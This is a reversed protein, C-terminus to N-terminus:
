AQRSLLSRLSLAALVRRRRGVRQGIERLVRGLSEWQESAVFDAIEARGFTAADISVALPALQYHPLLAASEQRTRGAPVAEGLDRAYDLLEQWGNIIRDGPSGRTRRLRRRAAKATVVAAAYLLVLLIPVGLWWLLAALWGPLASGFRRLPQASRSRSSSSDAQNFQELSSPPRLSNPPPVVASNDDQQQQQQQKAPKHDHDPVIMASPLAVWEGTAAHVEIWAHVDIGKVTGDPEPIAGLVVRAPLGLYNALLALSAAYQEDDGAPQPAALFQTLRGLSHGPLYSTEGPGGDTYAGTDHLHKAISLLRQWPDGSSGGWSLAYRSVFSYVSADLTPAGFPALSAPLRQSPLVAEIDYSDGAQLRDTVLGAATDLNYRVSDGHATRNPGAFAIGTVSGADALWVSCAVSQAYGPAIRVTFRVRSGRAATAIRTGVRSFQDVNGDSGGATWATGAYDDLTAIRVPTGASLGRETFLVQQALERADPTYRRFGVLPSPYDNLEIPPHVSNRLVLRGAGSGSGPLYPGALGVVAVTA